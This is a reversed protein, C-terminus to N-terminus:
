PKERQTAALFARIRRALDAGYHLEPWRLRLEMEDLGAPSRERLARRSLQVVAESLRAAM